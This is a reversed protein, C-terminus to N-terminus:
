YNNDLVLNKRTFISPSKFKEDNGRKKEEKKM